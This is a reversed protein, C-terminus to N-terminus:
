KSPNYEILSREKIENILTSRAEEENQVLMYGGKGLAAMASMRRILQPDDGFGVISLKIGERAYRRVLRMLEHNSYEPSNFDGDTAIIVQNNGGEIYKERAIEYAIGLGKIGYTMGFSNLSEISKLISDKNNAPLAIFHVRQVNAFTILTLRDIDRLAHTMRSMAIKLHNMKNQFRMSGSVDILFVINNAAYINRALVEEAEFVAEEAMVVPQLSDLDIM